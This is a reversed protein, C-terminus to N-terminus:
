LALGLTKGDTMEVLSQHPIQIWESIPFIFNLIYFCTHSIKSILIPSDIWVNFLIM